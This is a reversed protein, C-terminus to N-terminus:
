QDKIIGDTISLFNILDKVIIKYIDTIAVKDTKQSIYKSAKLLHMFTSFQKYQHHVSRKIMIFYAGKTSTIYKLM